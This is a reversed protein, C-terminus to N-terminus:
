ASGVVGAIWGADDVQDCPCTRKWAVVRKVPDIAAEDKNCLSALRTVIPPLM